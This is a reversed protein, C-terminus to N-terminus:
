MTEVLFTSATFSQAVSLDIKIDTPVIPAGGLTKQWPSSVVTETITSGDKRLMVGGDVSVAAWKIWSAKGDFSLWPQADLLHGAPMGSRGVSVRLGAGVPVAFPGLTSLGVVFSRNDQSAIITM